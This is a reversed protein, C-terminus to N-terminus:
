SPTGGTRSLRALAGGFVRVHNELTDIKRVGYNEDALHGADRARLLHQVARWEEDTLLALQDLAARKATLARIKQAPDADPMRQGSKRGGGYLKGVFVDDPVKFGRVVVRQGRRGSDPNAVDVPILRGQKVLVPIRTRVGGWFPQLALERSAQPGNTRLFELLQETAGCETM